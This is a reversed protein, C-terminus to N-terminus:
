KHWASILLDSVWYTSLLHSGDKENWILIIAMTEKREGGQPNASEGFCVVTVLAIFVAVSATQQSVLDGPFMQSVHLHKRLM